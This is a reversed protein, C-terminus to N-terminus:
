RSPTGIAAPHVAAAVADALAPIAAEDLPSVTIRIGPPAALRFLSGPAVAYGRVWVNIGTAGQAPLGRAELADRLAQRRRAYDGAAVAVAATVDDDKWLHLLVRQLVTSVWGAGIRMRGVVRAITTEDGVVVAIRLDPGFPKSASRTL